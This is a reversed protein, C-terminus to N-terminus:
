SHEARNAERVETMREDEDKKLSTYRRLFHQLYDIMLPEGDSCRVCYRHQVQLYFTPDHCWGPGLQHEAPPRLTAIVQVDLPLDGLLRVDEFRIRLVETGMGAYAGDAAINDWGAGNPHPHLDNWTKV